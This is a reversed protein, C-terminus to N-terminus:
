LKQNIIAITVGSSGEGILGPRYSYILKKNEKLWKIVVEKLIRKDCSHRGVGHIIKVKTRSSKKQNIIIFKKLKNIAEYRNFGHLDISIIEYSKKVSNLKKPKLINKNKLQDKDTILNAKEWEKFIDSFNNNM